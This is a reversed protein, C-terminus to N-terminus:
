NANYNRSRFHCLAGRLEGEGNIFSKIAKLDNLEGNAVNSLNSRSDEEEDFVSAYDELSFHRKREQHPHGLIPSGSVAKPWFLCDLPPVGLSPSMGALSAFPSFSDSSPM